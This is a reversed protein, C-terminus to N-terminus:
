AKTDNRYIFLEDLTQESLSQRSFIKVLQEGTISDQSLAIRILDSKGNPLTKYATFSSFPMTDTETTVISRPLSELTRGFYGTWFPAHLRSWTLMHLSKM